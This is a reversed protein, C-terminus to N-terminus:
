LMLYNNSFGKIYIGLIGLTNGLNVVKLCLIYFTFLYTKCKIIGNDKGIQVKNSLASVSIECEVLIWVFLSSTKIHAAKNYNGKYGPSLRLIHKIMQDHM